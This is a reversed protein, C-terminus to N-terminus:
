ALIGAVVWGDGQSRGGALLWRVRAQDSHRLQVCVLQGWWEGDTSCCTLGVM